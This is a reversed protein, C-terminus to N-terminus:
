GVIFLPLRRTGAWIRMAVWTDWTDGRIGRIRTDEHKTQWPGRHNVDVARRAVTLARHICLCVLMGTM